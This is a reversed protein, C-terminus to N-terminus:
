GGCMVENYADAYSQRAWQALAKPTDDAPRSAGYTQGHFTARWGIMQKGAVDAHILTARTDALAASVADLTDQM